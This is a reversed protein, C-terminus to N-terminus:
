NRLYHSDVLARRRERLVFVEPPLPKPPEPKRRAVMLAMAFAGLSGWVPAGVLFALAYTM